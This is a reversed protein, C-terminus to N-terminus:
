TIVHFNLFGLSTITECWNLVSLPGLGAWASMTGGHEHADWSGLASRPKDSLLLIGCRDEAVRYIRFYLLVGCGDPSPAAKASGYIDGPVM